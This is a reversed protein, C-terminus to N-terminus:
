TSKKSFRKYHSILAPGIYTSWENQKKTIQLVVQHAEHDSLSNLWALIKSKLREYRILRTIAWFFCILFIVLFFYLIIMLIKDDISIVYIIGILFASTIISFSLFLLNQWRSSRWNHLLTNKYGQSFYIKLTELALGSCSPCIINQNPTAILKNYEEDVASELSSYVENSNLGDGSKQIEVCHDWHHGCESCHRPLRVKRTVSLLRPM